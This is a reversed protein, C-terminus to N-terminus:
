ARPTRFSVSVTKGPRVEDDLDRSIAETIKLAHDDSRGICLQVM